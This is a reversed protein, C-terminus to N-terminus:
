SKRWSNFMHEIQLAISRWHKIENSPWRYIASFGTERNYLYVQVLLEHDTMQINYTPDDRSIYEVNKTASGGNYTTAYKILGFDTSKTTVEGPFPNTEKDDIVSKIRREVSDLDDITNTDFVRASVVEVPVCDESYNRIAVTFESAMDAKPYSGDPFNFFYDIVKSEFIKENNAGRKGISADIPDAYLGRSSMYGLPIMLSIGSDLKRHVPDDLNFMNENFQEDHKTEERANPNSCAFAFGMSGSALFLLAPVILVVLLRNRMRPVSCFDQKMVVNRGEDEGARPLPSSGIAKRNPLHPSRPPLARM